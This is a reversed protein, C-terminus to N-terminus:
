LILRNCEVVTAGKPVNKTVVANAGIKVNDGVSIGGLVKAGAGIFCNDGIRPADASDIVGITVQHMITCNEGIIANGSICIGFNHPIRLGAGIRASLPYHNYRNVTLKILIRFIFGGGCAFFQGLRFMFLFMKTDFGRDQNVLFDKKLCYYLDKLKM